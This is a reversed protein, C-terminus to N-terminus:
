KSRKARSLRRSISAQSLGLHRAADRQSPFTKCAYDILGDSYEDILLRYDQLLGHTHTEDRCLTHIHRTLTYIQKFKTTGPVIARFDFVSARSCQKAIVVLFGGLAIPLVGAATVPVGVRMLVTVIVIVVVFTTLGFLVNFSNARVFESEARRYWRILLWVSYFLFFLLVSPVVGYYPGPVRTLAQPLRAVDAVILDTTLILLSLYSWIGICISTKALCIQGGLIIDILVPLSIVTALVCLYYGKLFFLDGFGPHSVLWYGYLELVTQFYSVSIYAMCARAASHRQSRLVYAAWIKLALGAGTLCFLLIM